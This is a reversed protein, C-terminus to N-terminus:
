SGPSPCKLAERINTIHEPYFVKKRGRKEHTEASDGIRKLIDTLSRSAVDLAKAAGARDLPQVAWSSADSPSM